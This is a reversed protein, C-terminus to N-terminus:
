AVRRFLGTWLKEEEDLQVGWGDKQTCASAQLWSDDDHILYKANHASKCPLTM